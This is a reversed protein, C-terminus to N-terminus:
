PTKEQQSVYRERALATYYAINEDNTVNDYNGNTDVICNYCALESSDDRLDPNDHLYYYKTVGANDVQKRRIYDISRYGTITGGGTKECGKRHYYSDGVVSLYIQNPDVYEKNNTSTAIAYNNYYKLGTPIGQLFGIISVNSLCQDWDTESLEPLRYEYTAGNLYQKANAVLRELSANISNRIVEKKHQTFLFTSYNQSEPDPNNNAGINFIDKKIDETFKNSKWDQNGINNNFWTTFYYAEIYYNVASYDKKLEYRIAVPDGNL